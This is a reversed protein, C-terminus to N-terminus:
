LEANHIIDATRARKEFLNAVSVSYIEFEFALELCNVVLVIPSSIGIGPIISRCTGLGEYRNIHNNTTPQHAQEM